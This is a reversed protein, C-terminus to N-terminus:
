ITGYFSSRIVEATPCYKNVLRKVLEENEPIMKAGTIIQMEYFCDARLPIDFYTYALNRKETDFRYFAGNFLENVSYPLTVFRYRFEKQDKWSNEKYRGYENLMVTVSGHNLDVINPKLKNMDDSYEVRYGLTPPPTFRFHKLASLTNFDTYESFISYDIKYKLNIKVDDDVRFLYFPDRKLGIRIGNHGDGYENWLWRNENEDDIWSSVFCYSGLFNYDENSTHIESKDDLKNMATFRINKNKLIAELSAISTYHYLFDNEM